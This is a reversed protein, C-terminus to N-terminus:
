MRCRDKFMQFSPTIILRPPLSPPPPPPPPPPRTFAYDRGVIVYCANFSFDTTSVSEQEKASGAARNKRGKTDFYAGPLTLDPHLSIICSVLEATLLLNLATAAVAAKKSPFLHLNAKRTAQLSEAVVNSNLHTLSGANCFLCQFELRDQV